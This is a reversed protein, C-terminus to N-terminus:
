LNIAPLKMKDARNELPLDIRFLDEVSKNGMNAALNSYKKFWNSEM